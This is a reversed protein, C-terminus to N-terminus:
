NLQDLACALPGRGDPHPPGWAEAWLAATTDAYTQRTAETRRADMVAPGPGFSWSMEGPHRTM